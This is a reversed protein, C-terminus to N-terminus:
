PKSRGRKINAALRLSDDVLTIGVRAYTRYERTRIPGQDWAGHGRRNPIKGYESARNGREPQAQGTDYDTRGHPGLDASM